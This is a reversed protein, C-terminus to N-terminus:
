RVSQSLVQFSIEKFELRKRKLGTVLHDKLIINYLERVDKLSCAPNLLLKEQIYSTIM